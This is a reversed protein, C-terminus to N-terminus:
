FQYGLSLLVENDPARFNQHHLYHDVAMQLGRSDGDQRSSFFTFRNKVTINRYDDRGAFGNLQVSLTGLGGPLDAGYEATMELGPEPDTEDRNFEVAAATRLNLDGYTVGSGLKVRTSRPDALDGFQTRTEAGFFYADCNAIAELDLRDTREDQSDVGLTADARIELTGNWIGWDSRHDGTLAAYENENTSQFVGSVSTQTQGEAASVLWMLLTFLVIRKM